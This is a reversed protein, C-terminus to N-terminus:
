NLTSHSQSLKASKLSLGDNKFGLFRMIGTNKSTATLVTRESLNSALAGGSTGQTVLKARNKDKVGGTEVLRGLAAARKSRQFVSWRNNAFNFVM